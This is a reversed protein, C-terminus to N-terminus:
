SRLLEPPPCRFWGSIEEDCADCDEDCRKGHECRELFHATGNKEAALIAGAQLYDEGADFRAVESPCGSCVGRGHEARLWHCPPAGNPSECPHAEDCGCGICLTFASM